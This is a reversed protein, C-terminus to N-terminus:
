PTFPSRGGMLDSGGQPLGPVPEPSADEIREPRTVEAPQEEIAEPVPPGRYLRVQWLLGDRYLFAQEQVALTAGLACGQRRADDDLVVEKGREGVIELYGVPEAGPPPQDVIDIRCLVMPGQASKPVPEVPPVQVEGTVRSGPACAGFAFLAALGWAAM